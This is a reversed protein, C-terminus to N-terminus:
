IRLPHGVANDLRWEEPLEKMKNYPSTVTKTVNREDKDIINSRRDPHKDNKKKQPTSPSPPFLPHPLSINVIQNEAM